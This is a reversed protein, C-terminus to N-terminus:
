LIDLFLATAAGKQELTSYFLSVPFSCCCVCGTLGKGRANSVSNMLRSALRINAAHFSYIQSQLSQSPDSANQKDEGSLSFIKTSRESAEDRLCVPVAQEPPTADVCSTQREKSCLKQSITSPRTRKWSAKIRRTHTHGDPELCLKLCSVASTTVAAGLAVRVLLVEPRSLPQSLTGKAAESIIKKM